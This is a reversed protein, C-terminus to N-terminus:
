DLGARPREIPIVEARGRWVKKCDCDKAFRELKGDYKAWFFMLGEGCTTGNGPKQAGGFTERECATFRPRRVKDAKPQRLTERKM